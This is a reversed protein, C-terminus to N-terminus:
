VCGSLSALQRASESPFSAEVEQHATVILSVPETWVVAGQWPLNTHMKRFVPVCPCRAAPGVRISRRGIRNPIVVCDRRCNVASRRIKNVTIEQFIANPWAVYRCRLVVRRELRGFTNEDAVRRPVGQTARRREVLRFHCGERLLDGLVVNVLFKTPEIEDSLPHVILRCWRKKRAPVVAHRERQSVLIDPM